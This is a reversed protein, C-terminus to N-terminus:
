IIRRSYTGFATDYVEYGMAQLRDRAEDSKAFEKRERYANRKEVQKMINKPTKEPTINLGVSKLMSSVTKLTQKASGPSLKFIFQNVENIMSFLAAFAAPTNFDDHMSSHFEKEYRRLVETTEKTSKQERGTKPLNQVFTLITLFLHINNLALRKNSIETEGFDAKSRYHTTTMIFRFLITPYTNLFDHLTIFNGLSKSMKRGEMQVMGTHMWYHVFPSKGSAAEQQAIEAEHHPFILDSGGGHIDYQPGFFTETIATDEIHWGPRGEGLSTKWFPENAKRLKWLCFDGRNRKEDNEDIRSVGDEAQQVTRRALKGYDQFKSIDYYYGDSTKYAYGKDSLTHVQRVIEHIYKTAPAYKDVSDIGLRKMDSLYIKSYQQALKLAEVGEAEAQKIIKDDIDTINQLYFIKYGQNRLYKVIVDFSMVTRANGIHVPGYVTPGCVFLRLRKRTKPLEEKTLTLTNFIKM